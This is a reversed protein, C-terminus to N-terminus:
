AVVAEKWTSVLENKVIILDNWVLMFIVLYVVAHEEDLQEDELM